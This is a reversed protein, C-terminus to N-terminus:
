TLLQDAEGGAWAWTRVPSSQQGSTTNGDLLIKYQDTDPQHQEGAQKCQCVTSRSYGYSSTDRKLSTSKRPGTSHIQIWIRMSKLPSSGSGSRPPVFNGAFFSFFNWTKLTSSTRNKPSAFFLFFKMNEFHQINEKSPQLSRWYSPCGKWLGLSLYIDIKSIFFIFKKNVMFM